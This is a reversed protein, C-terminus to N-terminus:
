ANEKEKIQEMLRRCQATKLGIETELGKIAKDLKSNLDTSDKINESSLGYRKVVEQTFHLNRYDKLM